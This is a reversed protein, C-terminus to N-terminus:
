YSSMYKSFFFVLLHSFSLLVSKSGNNPFEYSSLGSQRSTLSDADADLEGVGAAMQCDSDSSTGSISSISSSISNSSSHYDQESRIGNAKTWSGDASDREGVSNFYFHLSLLLHLKLSKVNSLLM